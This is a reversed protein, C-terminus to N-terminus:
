SVPKTCSKLAAPVPFGARQAGKITAADVPFPATDKYDDLFISSGGQILEPRACRLFPLSISARKLTVAQATPAHAWRESNSSTVLVGLRHGKPMIWDNPYIDFSANTPG